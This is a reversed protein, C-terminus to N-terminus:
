HPEGNPRTPLLGARLDGAPQQKLNTIVFRPNDKSPKGEQRVVEAKFIVRREASWSGARYRAEGYVHETKGSAQSLQRAQEM